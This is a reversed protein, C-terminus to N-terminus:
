AKRYEEIHEHVIKDLEKREELSLSFIEKIKKLDSSVASKLMLSDNKFAYQIDDKSKKSGMQIADETVYLVADFITFLLKQVDTELVDLAVTCVMTGEKDSVRSALMDLFRMFSIKNHHWRLFGLDELLVLQKLKMKKEVNMLVETMDICTLGGASFKSSGDYKETFSAHLNPYCKFKKWLGNTQETFFVMSMPIGTKELISSMICYALEPMKAQESYTFLVNHGDILGFLNTVANESLIETM